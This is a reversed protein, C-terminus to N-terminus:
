RPRRAIAGTSTRVVAGSMELDVLLAQVTGAPLRSLRIIDDIAVPAMGILELVRLDQAQPGDPDPVDSVVRHMSASQAAPAVVVPATDLGDAEDWFTERDAIGAEDFAFRPAATAIMPGLDDLVDEVSGCLTAGGRILANTGEARPDLPSGPVAFVTRGQEGAFRATILSGSRQAAEVVIVALALGSVIRNRRPFDRGRPDWAFPMESIVAGAETMRAALGANENPYLRGHGGALVGVTGSELSAQHAKTDIGRALGSVVVYGAEGLGRALRETMILGAASANRSGVMAVMPRSLAAIQGKVILVPPPSDIQRLADPYSPDCSPVLVLGARRLVETEQEADALSALRIPRRGATRMLGPIAALAARATGFRAIMAAFTRPGVNESRALRLWDLMEGDDLRCPPRTM